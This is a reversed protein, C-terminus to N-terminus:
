TFYKRCVLASGKGQPILALTGTPWVWNHHDSSSNAKARFEGYHTPIDASPWKVSVRFFTADKVKEVLVEEVVVSEASVGTGAAVYVVLWFVFWLRVKSMPIVGGRM